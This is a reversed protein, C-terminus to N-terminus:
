TPPLTLGGDPHLTRGTMSSAGRGLLFLYSAATEEPSTLVGLPSRRRLRDDREPDDLRQAPQELSRLGAIATGSTGGPAVANVRVAPALERALHAVVGRLAWKTSGYLVGGGEPHFAAGSLTIVVSGRRAVLLPTTARVAHLVSRVNIDFIENFAADLQAPTLETLTQYRDFVGVCCVLGDLGGLERGRDALLQNGESTTADGAVAFLLSGADEQLRELRSADIDLAIVRTGQEVLAMSVARGIGSGAGTVAVASHDPLQTSMVPSRM